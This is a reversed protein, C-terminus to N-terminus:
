IKEAAHLTGYNLTIRNRIGITKPHKINQRILIEKKQGEV